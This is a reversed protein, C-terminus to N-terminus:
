RRRSCTASMCSVLVLRTDAAVATALLLDNIKNNTHASVWHNIELRTPQSNRVFDRKFLGAGFNSAGLPLESSGM